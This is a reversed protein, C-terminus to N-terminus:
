HKIKFVIISCINGILAVFLLVLNVDQLVLVRPVTFFILNAGGLYSPGFSFFNTAFNNVFWLGGFTLLTGIVLRIVIMKPLGFISRVSETLIMMTGFGLGAYLRSVAGYPAKFAPFSDVVMWFIAFNIFFNIIKKKM